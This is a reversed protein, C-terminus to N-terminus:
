EKFRYGIGPITSILFPRSPDSEIKQRLHQIHVDIVRSWSYIKNDKWLLKKIVERRVVEGRHAVLFCLLEYEKPTLTIEHERIRVLRRKYDISLDHIFTIEEIAPKSRRLLAKIRAMLELTEFPKVVYDDAGGELGIIKDSVKDKATLLIIPLSQRSERITRCIEFGNGDPLMVDLLLLDPDSSELIDRGDEWTEATSVTFGNLELNAKLVRLIDPDDDILLLKDSM